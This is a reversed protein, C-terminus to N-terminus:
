EVSAHPQSAQGDENLGWCVAKDETTLACAHGKGMTIATYEHDDPLEPIDHLGDDGKGACALERPASPTAGFLRCTNSGGVDMAHVWGYDSDGTQGYRNLGKCITGQKSWAGTPTHDLGCVHSGSTKVDTCYSVSDGSCFMYEIPPDYGWCYFSNHGDSNGAGVGCTVDGGADISTFVMDEFLWPRGNTATGWLGGWCLTEGDTTIGCTHNDGTTVMTFRADAPPTSQGEDDLGWCIAEGEPTLGCTHYTGASLTEFVADNPPRLKGYNDRGWCLTEDTMTIGCTYDEGASLHKWCISMAGDDDDCDQETLVGDCDNDEARITATPNDDDCDDKSIIGDCDGDTALTTSTPDDDDCDEARPTGDGDADVVPEPTAAPPPGSSGDKEGDGCGVSAFVLLPSLLRM